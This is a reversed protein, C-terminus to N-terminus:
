LTVLIEKFIGRCIAPKFCCKPICSNTQVTILVIIWCLIYIHKESRKHTNTSTSSAATQTKRSTLLLATHEVDCSTIFPHESKVCVRCDSEQQPLTSLQQTRFSMWTFFLVNGLQERLEEARWQKSSFCSTHSTCTWPTYKFLMKLAILCLVLTEFWVRNQIVTKLVSIYVMVFVCFCQACEM